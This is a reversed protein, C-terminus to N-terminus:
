YIIGGTVRLLFILIWGQNKEKGIQAEELELERDRLGM